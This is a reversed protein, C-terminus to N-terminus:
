LTQRGSAEWTKQRKALTDSSDQYSRDPQVFTRTACDATPRHAAHHNALGRGFRPTGTMKLVIIQQVYTLFRRMRQIRTGWRVRM